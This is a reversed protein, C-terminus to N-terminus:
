TEVFNIVQQRATEGDCALDRYDLTLVQWGAKQLKELRRRENEARTGPYGPHDFLPDYHVKGNVEIARQGSLAFDVCIFTDEGLPMAEREYVVGLGDLIAMVVREPESPHDLRYRRCLHFLRAYGYKRAYAVAGRHGLAAMDNVAASRRGAAQQHAKWDPLSARAL